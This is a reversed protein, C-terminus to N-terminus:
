ESPQRPFLTALVPHADTRAMHSGLLPRAPVWIWAAGTSHLTVIALVKGCLLLLSVAVTRADKLAFSAKHWARAVHGMCCYCLDCHKEWFM